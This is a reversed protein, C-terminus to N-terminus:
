LCECRIVIAEARLVLWSKHIIYEFLNWEKGLGMRWADIQGWARKRRWHWEKNIDVYKGAGVGRGTGMWAEGQKWARAWHSGM